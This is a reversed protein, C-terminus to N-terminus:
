RSELKNLREEVNDIIRNYKDFCRKAEPWPRPSSMGGACYSSNLSANWLEFNLKAREKNIGVTATLLATLGWALMASQMSFVATRIFKHRALQGATLTVPRQSQADVWDFFPHLLYVGAAISLVVLFLASAIESVASLVVSFISCIVLMQLYRFVRDIVPPWDISCFISWYRKVRTLIVPLRKAWVRHSSRLM